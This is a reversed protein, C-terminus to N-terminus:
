NKLTLLRSHLGKLSIYAYLQSQSRLDFGAGPLNLKNLLLFIVLYIWKRFQFLIVLMVIWGFTKHNCAHILKWSTENRNRNRFMNDFFFYNECLTSSRCVYYVSPMESSLLTQYEGTFIENSIVTVIVLDKIQIIPHTRPDLSERFWLEFCKVFIRLILIEIKKAFKPYTSAISIEEDHITGIYM